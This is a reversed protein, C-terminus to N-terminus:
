SNVLEELRDLYAPKETVTIWKRLPTKARIMAMTASVDFTHQPKKWTKKFVLRGTSPWWEAFITNFCGWPLGTERFIWHEGNNKIELKLGLAEAEMCHKREAFM